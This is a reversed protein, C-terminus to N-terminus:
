FLGFTIFLNWKCFTQFSLSRYNFPFFVIFHMQSSFLVLRDVKFAALQLINVANSFASAESMWSFYYNIKMSVFM